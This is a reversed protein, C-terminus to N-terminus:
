VVGGCVRDIGDCAGRTTLRQTGPFACLVLGNPGTRGQEGGSRRTEAERGGRERRLSHYLVSIDPRACGCLASGADRLFKERLFKRGSGSHPSTEACQWLCSSQVPPTGTKRIYEIQARRVVKTNSSKFSTEARAPRSGRALTQAHADDEDDEDDDDDDDGGGM